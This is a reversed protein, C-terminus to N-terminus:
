EVPRDSRRPEPVLSDAQWTAGCRICGTQAGYGALRDSGCRPCLPPPKFRGDPELGAYWSQLVASTDAPPPLRHRGTV